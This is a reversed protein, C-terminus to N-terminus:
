NFAMSGAVGLLIILTAKASNGLAKSFNLANQKLPSLDSDITSKYYIMGAQDSTPFTILSVSKTIKGIGPISYTINGIKKGNLETLLSTGKRANDSYNDVYKQLQSKGESKKWQSIPKIEYIENGNIYDARGDTGEEIGAGLIPVEAKGGHNDVLYKEIVTHNKIGEYKAIINWNPIEETEGDPDM